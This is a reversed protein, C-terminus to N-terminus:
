LEEIPHMFDNTIIFDESKKHVQECGCTEAIELELTGGRWWIGRVVRKITAWVKPSFHTLCFTGSPFLVGMGEEKGGGARQGGRQTPTITHGQAHKGRRLQDFAGTSHHTLRLPAPPVLGPDRWCLMSPLFVFLLSSLRLVSNVLRGGHRYVSWATNIPSVFLFYIVNSLWGSLLAEVGTPILAHLPPQLGTLTQKDTEATIVM